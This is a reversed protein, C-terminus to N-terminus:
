RVWIRIHGKPGALAINQPPRRDGGRLVSFQQKTHHIAQGRTGRDGPIKPHRTQRRGPYACPLDYREDGINVTQSFLVKGESSANVTPPKGKLKDAGINIEIPFKNNLYALRNANVRRIFADRQLSSDGMAVAFVPAKLNKVRYVPHIGKNYLGDGALIVAGINRGAYVSELEKFIQEYDTQKEPFDVTGNQTLKEGATYRM